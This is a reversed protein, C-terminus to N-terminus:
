QKSPAFRWDAEKSHAVIEDSLFRFHMPVMEAAIAGQADIAYLSIRKRPDYVLSVDKLEKVLHQVVGLPKSGGDDVFIRVDYKM